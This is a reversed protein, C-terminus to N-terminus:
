TNVDWFCQKRETVYFDFLHCKGCTKIGCRYETPQGNDDQGQCLKMQCPYWSICVETRCVCEASLESTEKCRKLVKILGSQDHSALELKDLDERTSNELLFLGCPEIILKAYSLIEMVVGIYYKKGKLQLYYNIMTDLNYIKPNKQRLKSMSDSSIFEEEELGTVFCMAEYSSEAKDIEGLVVVQFVKRKNNGCCVSTSSFLLLKYRSGHTMFDITVYDKEPDARFEKQVVDGDKAKINVVLNFSCRQVMSGECTRTHMGVRTVTKLIM